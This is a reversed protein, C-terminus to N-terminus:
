PHLPSPYPTYLLSKRLGIRPLAFFPPEDGGKTFGLM